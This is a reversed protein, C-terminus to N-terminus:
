PRGALRGKKQQRNVSQRQRSSAVVIPCKAAHKISSLIVIVFKTHSFISWESMRTKQHFVFAIRATKASTKERDALLSLIQIHVFPVRM